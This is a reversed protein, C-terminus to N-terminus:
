VLKKRMVLVNRGNEHRYEMEDMMKRALFIGLGGIQREAVSSTTDPASQTLPNFPVGADSLTLELMDKLKEAMVDLVGDGQPYAYNAINECVEEVALRLRLDDPMEPLNMVAATLEATRGNVAEFHIKTM